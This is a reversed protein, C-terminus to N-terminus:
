KRKEHTLHQRLTVLRSEFMIKVSRLGRGGSKRHVYLKDIDNNPHFNGIMTLINRTKIDIQKIGDAM